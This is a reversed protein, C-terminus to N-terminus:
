NCYVYGVSNLEAYKIKEVSLNRVREVRDIFLLLNTSDSALKQKGNSVSGRCNRVKPSNVSKCPSKLHFRTAADHIDFNSHSNDIPLDELLSTRRLRVLERDFKVRYGEVDVSTSSKLRNPQSDFGEM